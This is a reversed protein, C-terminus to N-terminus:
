DISLILVLLNWLFNNNPREKSAAALDQLINQFRFLPLDDRLDTEKLDFQGTLCILWRQAPLMRQKLIWYM